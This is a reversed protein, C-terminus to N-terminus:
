RGLIKDRMLVVIERMDSELTDFFGAPWRDFDGYENEALKNFHHNGEEDIEVFYFKLLESGNQGKVRHLRSRTIIYESHTEIIFGKLQSQALFFDAIRSQVAPHLHLEPQELLIISGEPSGLVATLIPLLQSAGVGIQTLDRSINEDKFSLVIGRGLKGEDRAQIKEGIDLYEVWENIADFLKGRKENFSPDLYNIDSDSNKLLFEATLEGKVGVPASDIMGSSLSLVQPEERLPGVYVINKLMNHLSSGIKQISRKIEFDEFSFFFSNPGAMIFDYDGWSNLAAGYSDTLIPIGQIESESIRSYYESIFNAANDKITKKNNKWEHPDQGGLTKVSPPTKKDSSIFENILDQLMYRSFSNSKYGNIISLINKKIDAAKRNVVLYKPLFGKFVIWTHIQKVGRYSRVKLLSDNLSVYPEIESRAVTGVNKDSAHLVVEGGSVISLESIFFRSKGKVKVPNLHMIVETQDDEGTAEKIKYSLTLYQGNIGFSEGDQKYKVIDAAEGLRTLRGNLNIDDDLSQAMLLLSQIYSSKGSSNTGTLYNLSNLNTEAESLAKFNQIKWNVLSENKM